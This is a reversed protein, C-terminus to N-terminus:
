LMKTFGETREYTRKYRLIGQGVANAIRDLFSAEKLKMEEFRNSIYGAEVLVAPINTKKLVYFRAQRIGRNGIPLNDEISECIHSSLESSEQRNETFAMDWLTKSLVSSYEIKSEKGIKMAGSEAAERARANDSMAESLYYCEFGKLSKTRSSNIHISVFIDAGSRNAIEARKPLPIFVDRDRTMVVKLGADELIAKLKKSVALTMNKEKLRLRRSIAGPDKGGHGPDIVVTKITVKSPVRAIEARRKLELGFLPALENKVFSAPLYVDGRDLLVPKEIRKLRGDILVSESGERLTIRNQGKQIVATKIFKDWKCNLEYVDCLKEMPLYHVNAFTRMDKQLLADMRFHPAQTACGALLIAAMFFIIFNYYFLRMYILANTFKTRFSPTSGELGFAYPGSGYTNALKVVEASIKM